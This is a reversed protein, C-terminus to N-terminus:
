AKNAIKDLLFQPARMIKNTDMNIFVLTTFATALSENQDDFLEYDFTIKYTPNERLQTTVKLLDDYRAPKTYKISIEVVPLMIRNEEMWRYTVGLERLWETRGQEFYAPYAGHYVVGMQDTEGYRVRLICSHPIM